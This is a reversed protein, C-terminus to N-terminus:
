YTVVVKDGKKLGYKESANGKNVFLELYGSSNVLCCLVKEEAQAYYRMQPVARGKVEVNYRDGLMALADSKIDTIANGFHDIYFIEGSVAGTM